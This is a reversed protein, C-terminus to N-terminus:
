EVEGFLAPIQEYAELAVAAPFFMQKVQGSIARIKESDLAVKSM